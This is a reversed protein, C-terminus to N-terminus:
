AASVVSLLPAEVYLDGLKKVLRQPVSGDVSGSAWGMVAIWENVEKAAAGKGMLPTEWVKQVAEWDKPEQPYTPQIPLWESHELTTYNPFDFDHKSVDQYDSEIANFVAIKDKSLVPPPPM